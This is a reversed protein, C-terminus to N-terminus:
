GRLGCPFRFPEFVAPTPDRDGAVDVKAALVTRRQALLYEGFLLMAAKAVFPQRKAFPVHIVDVSLTFQRATVAPARLQGIARAVRVDLPDARHERWSGAVRLFMVPYQPEAM